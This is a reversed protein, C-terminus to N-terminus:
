KREQRVRLRDQMAKAQERAYQRKRRLAERLFPPMFNDGLPDQVHIYVGVLLIFVALAIGAFIRIFDDALMMILILVSMTWTVCVLHALSYRMFFLAVIVFRFCMLMIIMVGCCSLGVLGVPPLLPYCLCSILVGWLCRTLLSRTAVLFEFARPSVRGREPLPPWNGANTSYSYPKERRM